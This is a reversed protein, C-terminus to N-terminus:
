LSLFRSKYKHEEIMKLFKPFLYRSDHPGPSSEPHYQVSFAPIQLCRLGEVTGDNLNTHTVEVPGWLSQDVYKLSDADVAFGHNQSTIEVCDTEINKVPHNAGRHGYKLKFTEAGLVLSLIQHGLCIGFVPIKGLLQMVTEIVNGVAAPDGPGNSILIGDPSLATIEDASYSAPVVNVEISLNELCRLINFKVGCDIVVVRAKPKELAAKGHSSWRYPKKTTVYKVLNSGEMQPVEDLKKKLYEVSHEGCTIYGKMAGNERIKRVLERTEIGSIGIVRNKSLYNGLSNTARQNSYNECYEKVVFGEIHCKSSEIDEENVGYNGIHPYTMVIIQGKYSPDTLIEQYGTLATNFVVEGGREGSFAFSEGEFVTGDELILYAKM